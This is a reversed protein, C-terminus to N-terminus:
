QMQTHESAGLSASSSHTTFGFDFFTRMIQGDFTTTGNQVKCHRQRGNQRVIKGMTEGLREVIWGMPRPPEMETPPDPYFHPCLHDHYSNAGQLLALHPPPFAPLFTPLDPLPVLVLLLRLALTLRKGAVLPTLHDVPM